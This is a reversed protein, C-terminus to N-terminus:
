TQVSLAVEGTVPFQVQTVAINVTGGNVILEEYDKVGNTKALVAGVQVWRIYGLHTDYDDTAEQGVELWYYALNKKFRETVISIDEGDELLVSASIDVTFGTPAVVTLHAGIPKLANIDDDGTGAIHLYVADLIQQNAPFGNSDIIILRVAGACRKNGRSDIYHFQEPLSPDNWEPDVIVLGVAPVEKGWRIYDARCGTMSSGNRMADLVRIMYDEDTEAEAGGTMPAHNTVYAIGSLPKVMLKITDAAVNGILGGDVAAVEIENTVQGKEDPTGNLVTSDITEFIISETLDAPTSFQYGSPIDTGAIGTVSVKGSAHNAARRITNVKEGHLDLWEGYSWQPFILKITENLVFEVFEAKELAPPRTYDWPINGESKDIGDPLADLMRSHIEDASYGELFEPPNYPYNYSDPM